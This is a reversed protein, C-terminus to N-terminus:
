AKKEAVGKFEACSCGRRMCQGKLEAHHNDPHKCSKDACAQRVHANPAQQQIPSM